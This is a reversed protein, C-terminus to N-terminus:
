SLRGTGDASRTEVSGASRGIPFSTLASTSSALKWSCTPFSGASIVTLGVERAAAAFWTELESQVQADVPYHALCFRDFNCCVIRGGPRTVRKLEALAQHRNAVWQLLHKSWVLDFAGGPFPISLVDGAVFNVTDLHESKAHRRAYDIHSPERDLGTVEGVPARAIARTISGSGCGADLVRDAREPMLFRLDDATGYIRTQRELHLPEEDGHLLYRRDLTSDSM